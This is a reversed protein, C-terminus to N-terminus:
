KLSLSALGGLSDSSAIRRATELLGASDCSAADLERLVPEISSLVEKQMELVEIVEAAHKSINVVDEASIEAGMSVECMAVVDSTQKESLFSSLNATRANSRLGMARVTLAYLLPDTVIKYLEPFHWGYWEKLRQFHTTM